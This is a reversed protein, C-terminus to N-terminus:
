LNQLVQEDSAYVENSAQEYISRNFGKVLRVNEPHIEHVTNKTADRGTQLIVATTPSVPYYMKSDATKDELGRYDLNVIPIDATIFPTDTYNKYLQLCSTINQTMNLAVKLAVFILIMNVYFANDLQPLNAVKKFEEIVAEQNDHMKKSRFYQMWFFKNFEFKMDTENKAAIIGRQFEELLKEDSYHVTAGFLSKILCEKLLNMVQQATSDQYFSLDGNQLRELFNHENDIKEIPSMVYNELFDRASGAEEMLQFDIELKIFERRQMYDLFQKMVAQDIPKHGSIDYFFKESAVNELLAFELTPQTGRPHKRLVYIRRKGAETSTNLWAALYKRWVYHQNKVVQRTASM